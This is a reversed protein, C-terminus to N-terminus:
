FQSGISRTIPIGIKNDVALRNRISDQYIEDFASWDIPQTQELVQRMLINSRLESFQKGLEFQDKISSEQARVVAAASAASAVGVDRPGSASAAAGNGVEMGCSFASVGLGVVVCVKKYMVM